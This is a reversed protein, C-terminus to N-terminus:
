DTACYVEEADDETLLTVTNAQFHPAHYGMEPAVEDYWREIADPLNFALVEAVQDRIRGEMRCIKIPREVKAAIRAM